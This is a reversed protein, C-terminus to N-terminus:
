VPGDTQSGVLDVNAMVFIWLVFGRLLVLALSAEYAM